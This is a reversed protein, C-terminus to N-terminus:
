RCKKTKKKLLFQADSDPAHNRKSRNNHPQLLSDPLLEGGERIMDVAVFLHVYSVGARRAGFEKSCAKEVLDLLDVWASSGRRKSMFASAESCMAFTKTDELTRVIPSRAGALIRM